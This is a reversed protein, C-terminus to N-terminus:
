FAEDISLVYKILEFVNVISAILVIFIICYFSQLSQSCGYASVHSFCSM